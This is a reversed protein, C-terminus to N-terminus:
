AKPSRPNAVPTPPRRIGLLRSLEGLDAPKSLHCDFGAELAQRRDHEQCYGTVAILLIADGFAARLRGAVQYGDLQPLGIDVVAAEPRWALAREVGRLGDEAVEVQCGWLELMMRMMERGDPHDEIVLVRRRSALPPATLAPSSEPTALEM